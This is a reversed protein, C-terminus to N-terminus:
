AIEALNAAELDIETREVEESLTGGYSHYSFRYATWSKSTKSYKLSFTRFFPRLDTVDPPTVFYRELEVVASAQYDERYKEVLRELESQLDETNSVCRAVAALELRAGGYPFMWTNWTDPHPNVLTITTGRTPVVVFSLAFRQPLADEPVLLGEDGELWAITDM